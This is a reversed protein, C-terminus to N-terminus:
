CVLVYKTNKVITEYKFGENKPINERFRLTPDGILLPSPSFNDESDKRVSLTRNIENCLVRGIPEGDIILEHLLIQPTLSLFDPTLTGVYALVGARIFNLALSYQPAGLGGCIRASYCGSHFFISPSIEKPFCINKQRNLAVVDPNPSMYSFDPFRMRDNNSHLVTYVIGGNFKNVVKFFEYAESKCPEGSRKATTEYVKLGYDSLVKSLIPFGYVVTESKCSLSLSRAILLSADEVTLGTILGFATDLFDDPSSKKCIRHVRMVWEPTVAYPNVVGILYEPRYKRTLKSLMVFDREQLLSPDTLTGYLILPAQHISAVMPALATYEEIPTFFSFVLISTNIEEYEKLKSYFKLYSGVSFIDPPGITIVNASLKSTGNM